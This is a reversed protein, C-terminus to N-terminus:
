KSRKLVNKAMTPTMDSYKELKEKQDLLRFVVEPKATCPQYLAAGGPRTTLVEGTITIDPDLTDMNRNRVKAM